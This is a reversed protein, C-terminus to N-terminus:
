WVRLFWSHLYQIPFKSDWNTGVCAAEECVTVIKKDKIIKNTSKFIKSTPAKVRIWPPKKPITNSIRHIKEPHRIESM